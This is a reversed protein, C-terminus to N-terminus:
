APGISDVRRYGGARHASVALSHGYPNKHIPSKQPLAEIRRLPSRALPRTRMRARLRALERAAGPSLPVGLLDPGLRLAIWPHTDPVVVVATARTITFGVVPDLDTDAVM